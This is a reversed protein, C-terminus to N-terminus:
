GGALWGMVAANPVLAARFGPARLARTWAALAPGFAEPRPDAMACSVAGSLLLLAAPHPGLRVAQLLRLAVMRRVVDLAWAEQEGSLAPWRAPRDPDAVFSALPTLAARLSAGADPSGLLVPWDLEALRQRWRALFRPPLGDELPEEVLAGLAQGLAGELLGLVAQEAAVGPPPLELRPGVAGETSVPDGGERWGAYCGPDLGIRTGRETVVAVLPYQRCITPKAAAGFRAHIRCGAEDLFACAGDQRRLAGEIVPDAVGLRAAVERIGAEEGPLLRVIVGRCSGGCRACTHTLPM